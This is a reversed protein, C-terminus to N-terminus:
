RNGCSAIAAALTRVESLEEAPPPPDANVKVYAAAQWSMDFYSATKQFPVIFGDPLTDDTGTAILWIRRGALARGLKRGESTLLLDTMRDFFTKMLGSMAYWYVPTAFVLHQHQLMRTVITHFHDRELKADYQFPEIRSLRLDIVHEPRLRLEARLCEAASWTNGQERPSGLILLVDNMSLLILPIKLYSCHASASM